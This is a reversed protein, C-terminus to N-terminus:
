LQHCKPSALFDLGPGAVLLIGAASFPEPGTYGNGSVQNRKVMGTAGFGLQIGNRAILSSPGLGDVVNDTISADANGNVIIGGKQYGTATNGDIRVGCTTPAAGFNRM